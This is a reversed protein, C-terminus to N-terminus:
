RVARFTAPVANLRQILEAQADAVEQASGGSTERNTPMGPSEKELQRVFAVVRAREEPPLAKIQEIIELSTM